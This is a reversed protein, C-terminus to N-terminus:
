APSGRPASPVRGELCAEVTRWLAELLDREAASRGLAPDTELEAATECLLDAPAPKLAPRPVPAPAPAPAAADREIAGRGAALPAPRVAAADPHGIGILLLLAATPGTM